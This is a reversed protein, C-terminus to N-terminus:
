WDGEGDLAQRFRAQGELGHKRMEGIVFVGKSMKAMYVMGICCKRSWVVRWQKSSDHWKM